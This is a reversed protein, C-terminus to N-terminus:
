IFTHLFFFIAFAAAFVAAFAPASIIAFAPVIALTAIVAFAFLGPV